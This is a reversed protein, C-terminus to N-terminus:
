VKVGREHLIHLVRAIDKRVQAPRHVDKLQNMTRQVRLQFLSERLKQLTEVLEADTRQRLERAKM